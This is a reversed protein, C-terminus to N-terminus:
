ESMLFLLLALLAAVLLCGWLVNSRRKQQAELELDYLEWQLSTRWQDNGALYSTMAALVTDLHLATDTCQQHDDFSGEQVELVFRGTKDSGATQIFDHSDRVLIAFFDERSANERILRALTEKDPNDVVREGCLDLEFRPKSTM